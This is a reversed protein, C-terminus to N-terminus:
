DFSIKKGQFGGGGRGGFGGRGGGRGGGGRGGFGGGGGGRGGFGGRGGGRGGFGGRGGGRGGFGGGGGGERPPRQAAFDLRVARASRGEGIYSGNMTNFATKADDVSNFTVYGFGKRNGSEPDTPLRLSKVAVADGFFASVMDEDADFPLNGVFLTDSEPSVTDGHKQARENARQGPTANEAPRPKSPDLRMGRGELEFGQMADLAAQCNAQSDFDVYGFGRSRQMEKDTVVRASNLGACDKFAEYLANDDIAWGLNGVFLTTFEDESAEEGKAKKVPTAADEEAKRKKSPEAKKEEKEEESDDSDDSDDSDGESDESDDSAEKKADAKKANKPADAEDMSEDSDSDDSDESEDAKAAVKKDAKKPKPAEEESEDSDEEEDSSDSSDSSEPEAKKAKGNLKAGKPKAESDSEDSSDDSADSEEDESESSESSESDSSEDKKSKKGKLAKSAVDKALKKSKAVPTSTAKSVGGKKVSTLPDSKASKGNAQKVKGM